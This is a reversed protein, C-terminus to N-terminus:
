LVGRISKMPHISTWYLLNYLLYIIAKIYVVVESFKANIAKKNNILGYHTQKSIVLSTNFTPYPWWLNWPHIVVFNYITPVHFCRSVSWIYSRNNAQLKETDMVWKAWASIESWIFHKTLIKVLKKNEYGRFRKEQRKLSIISLSCQFLQMNSPTGVFFYCRFSIIKTM